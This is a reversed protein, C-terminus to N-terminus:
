KRASTSLSRGAARPVWRVGDVLMGGVVLAAVVWLALGLRPDVAGYLLWGVVADAAVLLLGPIIVDPVTGSEAGTIAGRETM